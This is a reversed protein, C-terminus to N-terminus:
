NFNRGLLKNIELIGKNLLNIKALNKSTNTNDGQLETNLKEIEMKLYNQKLLLISKKITSDLNKTEDSTFIQHSKEWHESITHKNTILDISFQQIDNDQHNIFKNMNILEGKELLLSYETLINEYFLNSFKIKDSKLETIIYQSALIEKENVIVVENGYNFLLRIIEKESAEMQSRISNNKKDSDIPDKYIEKTKPTNSKIFSYIEEKMLSEPINLTESSLKCYEFRLLQDPIIAISKAIDKIGKTKESPSINPINNLLRAKYKIFDTTNENLYKQFNNENMKKSYSDPDEGNPFKIIQVNMGEKLILNISKFSALKGAEDGDFLLTINNTFRKILSIQKVSLATGSASVVNTVGNQHMSIVDTYGEVIYCNDLKNISTKAFYIGYLIHSKQYIPTEPSNVYKAKKNKLISRGGFGITKGTHNHIPFIIRHQFRDKVSKNVTLCLGSEELIEKQYSDKLCQKTLADQEKPSYGIQFTKISSESFGRDFLYKLANSSEINSEWLKKQFFDNAYSTIMFISKKLNSREIEKDSLVSEKIEINYQNALEKLAEPYSFGNIEMIFNVSNGGKGCGFCKYIGKTPSVSFSPTKENHFPCCAWYNVGKKKLDPLYNRVVEEIKCTEFIESITEQDIM